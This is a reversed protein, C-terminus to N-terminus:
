VESMSSSLRFLGQGTAGNTYVVRYEASAGTMQVKATAYTSATVSVAAGTAQWTAGSDLSQQVVFSGGQDAFAAVNFFNLPGNQGASRSAGTFVGNGALNATSDTWGIM